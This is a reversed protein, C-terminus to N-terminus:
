LDTIELYILYPVFMTKLNCGCCTAIKKLMKVKEQRLQAPLDFYFHRELYWNDCSRKLDLEVALNSAKKIFRALIAANKIKLRMEGFIM